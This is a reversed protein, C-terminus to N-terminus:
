FRVELSMAFLSWGFVLYVYCAFLNYAIQAVFQSWICAYIIKTDTYKIVLAASHPLIRRSIMSSSWSGNRRWEFVIAESRISDVCCLALCCCCLHYIYRCASLSFQYPFIWVPTHGSNPSNPIWNEVAKAKEDLRYTEPEWRPVM